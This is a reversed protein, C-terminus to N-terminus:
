VYVEQTTGKAGVLAHNLCGHDSGHVRQGNATTNHGIQNGKQADVVEEIAGENPNAVSSAEREIECELCTLGCGLGEHWYDGPETVSEPPGCRNCFYM